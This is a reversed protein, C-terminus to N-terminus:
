PGHAIRAKRAMKALGNSQQTSFRSGTPTGRGVESWFYPKLRRDPTGVRGGIHLRHQLFGMDSVKVPEKLM